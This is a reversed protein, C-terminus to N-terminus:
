KESYEWRKLAEMAELEPVVTSDYRGSTAYAILRIIAWYVVCRPLHFAIWKSVKMNPVKSVKM